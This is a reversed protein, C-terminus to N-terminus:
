DEVTIIKQDYEQTKEETAKEKKFERIHDYLLRLKHTEPNERYIEKIVFDEYISWRGNLPVRRTHIAGVTYIFDKERILDTIYEPDQTYILGHIYADHNRRKTHISIRTMGNTKQPIRINSVYGYVNIQNIQDPAYELLIKEISDGVISQYPVRKETNQYDSITQFHGEVKVFTGARFNEALIDVNIKGPVSNYFVIKPYNACLSDREFSVALGFTINNTVKFVDTILGYLTVQNSYGRRFQKQM